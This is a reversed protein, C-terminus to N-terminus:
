NKYIINDNTDNWELLNNNVDMLIRNTEAEEETVTAEYVEYAVQRLQVSAKYRDTAIIDDKILEVDLPEENAYQVGAIMITEHQLAINLKEVMFRPLAGTELVFMRIPYANLAILRENFSTYVEKQQGPMYQMFRGEINLTFQIANVYNVGDNESGYYTISILEAIDNIEFLESIYVDSDFTLELYYVGAAGISFKLEYTTFNEYALISAIDATKDSIQNGDEGRVIAQISSADTSFQMTIEDTSRIKQTYDMTRVYRMYTEDAALTNDFSQPDGEKIMRLTCSRPIEIITAM